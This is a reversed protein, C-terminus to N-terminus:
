IQCRKALDISFKYDRHSDNGIFLIGERDSFDNVKVKGFHRM